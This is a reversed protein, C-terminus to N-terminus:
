DGGGGVLKILDAFRKAPQKDSFTCIVYGKDNRVEYMGDTEVVKAETAFWEVRSLLDSWFKIAADLLDDESTKRQLCNSFLKQMPHSPHRAKM